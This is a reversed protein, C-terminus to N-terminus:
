ITHTTHRIITTIRVTKDSPLLATFRSKKTCINHHWHCMGFETLINNLTVIM